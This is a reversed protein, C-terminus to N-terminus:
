TPVPNAILICAFGEFFSTSRLAITGITLTHRSLLVAGLFSFLAREFFSTSGRSFTSLTLVPAIQTRYRLFRLTTDIGNAVRVAEYLLINHMGDTEEFLSLLVPDDQNVSCVVISFKNPSNEVIKITILDITHMRENM